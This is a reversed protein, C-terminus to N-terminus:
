RSVSGLGGRSGHSKSDEEQRATLDLGQQNWIRWVDSANLGARRLKSYNEIGLAIQVVRISHAPKVRQGDKRYPQKLEGRRTVAPLVTGNDLKSEPIYVDDERDYNEVEMMLDEYEEQRDDDLMRLNPHPPIDITESGGNNPYTLQLPTCAFVSDYAAAQERARRGSEPASPLHVIPNGTPTSM